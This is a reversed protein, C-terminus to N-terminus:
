LDIGDDIRGVGREEAASANIAGYVAGCAGFEQFSAAFEMAALGAVGFGRGAKTEGGFPDEVRHTRDPVATGMALRVKQGTAIPATEFQGSLM